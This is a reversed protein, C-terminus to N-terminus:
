KSEVKNGYDNGGLEWSILTGYHKSNNQNTYVKNCIETISDWGSVNLENNIKEKM